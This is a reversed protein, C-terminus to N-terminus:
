ILEFLGWLIKVKIGKKLKFLINITSIFDTRLISQIEYFTDEEVKDYIKFFNKIYM